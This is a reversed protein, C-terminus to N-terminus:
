KDGNDEVVHESRKHYDRRDGERGQYVLGFGSTRRGVARLGFGSARIGFGWIGLWVAVLPLGAPCPARKTGSRTSAPRCPRLLRRVPDGEKEGKGMNQQVSVGAAHNATVFTASAVRWRALIVLIELLVAKSELTHPLAATM